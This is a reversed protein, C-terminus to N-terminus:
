KPPPVAPLADAGPFFGLKVQLGVLILGALVVIVGIVGKKAVELRLETWFKEEAQAARIKAVHYDRHGTFDPEDKDNRPFADSFETLTDNMQKLEAAVEKRCTDVRREVFRKIEIHEQDDASM